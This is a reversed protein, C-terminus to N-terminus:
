ARVGDIPIDMRNEALQGDIRATSGRAIRKFMLKSSIRLRYGKIGQSIYSESTDEAISRLLFRLFRQDASYFIAKSALFQQASLCYRSRHRPSRTRRPHARRPCVPPSGSRSPLSDTNKPIRRRRRRDGLGDASPRFPTQDQRSVCLLVFLSHAGM